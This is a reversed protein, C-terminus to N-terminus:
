LDALRVLDNVQFKPKIKKRKDLLKKHVCGENKNLSAQLRTMKISSHIRNIHQKTVTPLVDIWNSDGKDFVLRKLLNRITRNIKEAFVGGLSTNGSHTKIIKKNFIYQLINNSFEQGRDTEILNPKKSSILINEFSDKIKLM